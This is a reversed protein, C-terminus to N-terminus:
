VHKFSGQGAKSVHCSTPVMIYWLVVLFYGKIVVQIVPKNKGKKDKPVMMRTPLTKLIHCEGQLVVYREVFHLIWRFEAVVDETKGHQGRSIAFPSRLHTILSTTTLKYVHALPGM